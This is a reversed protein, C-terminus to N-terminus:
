FSKYWDAADFRFEGASSRFYLTSSPRYPVIRVTNSDIFEVQTRIVTNEYHLSHYDREAILPRFYLQIWEGDRLTYTLVTTNQRHVMSLSKELM